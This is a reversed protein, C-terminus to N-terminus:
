KSVWARAGTIIQAKIQDRRNAIPGQPELEPFTFGYLGQPLAGRELWYEDYDSHKLVGQQKQLPHFADKIAHVPAKLEQAMARLALLAADKPRLGGIDRTSDIVERKRGYAPGQIGGVVIALGGDLTVFSFTLRSLWLRDSRRELHLTLEGERYTDTLISAAIHLDYVEGKRGELSISHPKGDGYFSNLYEASFIKPLWDHHQLLFDLRERPGFHKHVYSRQPKALVRVEPLRAGFQVYRSKAYRSWRVSVNPALLFRMYYLRWRKDRVSGSRSPDKLLNLNGM